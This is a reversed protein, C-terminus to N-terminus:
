QREKYGLKFEQPIKFDGINVTLFEWFSDRMAPIQLGNM